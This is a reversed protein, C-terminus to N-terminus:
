RGKALWTIPVSTSTVGTDNKWYLTVGTVTPTSTTVQKNADSQGSVIAFVDPVESFATGFTLAVSGSASAGGTWTAVGHEEREKPRYARVMEPTADSDLRRSDSGQHTHLKVLQLQLFLAPDIHELAVQGKDIDGKQTLAKPLLNASLYSM